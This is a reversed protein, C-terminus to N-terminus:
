TTAQDIQTLCSWFQNSSCIPSWEWELSSSPLSSTSYITDEAQTYRRLTPRTEPVSEMIGLSWAMSMSHRTLPQYPSGIPFRYVMSCFSGDFYSPSESSSENYFRYACGRCKVADARENTVPCQVASEIRLICEKISHISVVV